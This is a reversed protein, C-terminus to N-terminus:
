FKNILDEIDDILKEFGTEGFSEFDIKSGDGFVLLPEVEYYYNVVNKVGNYYEYKEEKQEFTLSAIKNNTKTNVILVASNKNLSNAAAASYKKEYSAYANNYKESAAEQKEYYEDLAKQYASNNQYDAFEPYNINAFYSDYDPETDAIPKLENYIKKFNLEGAIKLNAVQINTNGSILYDLAEDEDLENLKNYSIENYDSNANISILVDNSKKWEFNASTKKNTNSVESSIAYSGFKLNVKAEKPLNDSHYAFNSNLDFIKNGGVTLSSNFDSPLEVKTEVETIKEDYQNTKQNYVYEYETRTYDITKGSSKYSVTLIANNTRGGKLAPFHFEIKDNSATKDWDKSTHNYKYIGYAKSLKYSEYSKGSTSVEALLNNIAAFKEKATGIKVLSSTVISVEPLELEALSEFAKISPDTSLDDIKKILDRGESEIFAKNATVGEKNYPLEFTEKEIIGEPEKKKSCSLVLIAALVFCITSKKM